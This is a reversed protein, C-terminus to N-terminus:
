TFVIQTSNTHQLSNLVGATHNFIFVKLDSKVRMRLPDISLVTCNNHLVCAHSPSVRRRLIASQTYSDCKHTDCDPNAQCKLFSLAGFFHFLFKVHAGLDILRSRVRRKHIVSSRTMIVSTRILIVSTQISIVSQSYFQVRRKCILSTRATIV